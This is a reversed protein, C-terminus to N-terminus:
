FLPQRCHCCVLVDGAMAVEAHLCAGIVLPPLSVPVTGDEALALREEAEEVLAHLAPKYQRIAEVLTPTLIGTRACCRLMGDPYPTLVVGWAHLQQLLVLATM